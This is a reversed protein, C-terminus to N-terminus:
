NTRAYYEIDTYEEDEILLGAHGSVVKYGQTSKTLQVRHVYSRDIKKLKGNIIQYNFYNDYVAKEVVIYDGSEQHQQMSCTTINGDQDYYMRYEIEIPVTKEILSEVETWFDKSM